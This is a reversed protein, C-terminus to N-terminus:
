AQSPLSHGNVRILRDLRVRHGSALDIFEEGNRAFVDEVRTNLSCAVGDADWFEITCEAKTVALEELRDHFHCDIPVYPQM